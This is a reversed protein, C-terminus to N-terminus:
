KRDDYIKDLRSKEYRLTENINNLNRNVSSEFSNLRDDIKAFRSNFEKRDEIQQDSIKKLMEIILEENKM